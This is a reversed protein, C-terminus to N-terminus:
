EKISSGFEILIEERIGRVNALPTQGTTGSADLQRIKPEFLTASAPSFPKVRGLQAFARNSLIACKKLHKEANM